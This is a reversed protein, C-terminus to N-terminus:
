FGRRGDGSRGGPVHVGTPDGRQDPRAAAGHSKLAEQVWHLNQVLEERSRELVNFSRRLRRVSWAAMGLATALGVAAVIGLSAGLSLRTASALWQAVAHLAVPFTALMLVAAIVLVVMGLTSRRIGEKLDFTLLRMQLELLKTLDHLLDALNGRSVPGTPNAARNSTAGNTTGNQM